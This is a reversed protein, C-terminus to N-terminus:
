DIRRKGTVTEYILSNKYSQLLSIRKEALKIAGDITRLKGRLFDIILVQEEIPPVPMKHRKIVEQSINPQGGGSAEVIFTQKASLFYYFSYEPLCRKSPPLVCCAQNTTTAIDLLGVKGITAGYMAIVVSGKPYTKLKYTKIALESLKKSTDIIIDDPLDGTQLWFHGNDDYYDTVGSPPTMGSGIANYNYVRSVKDIQWHSPVMGLYPVGSDNFQAELNIGKTIANFITSQRLEKLLNIRKQQTAIAKDIKECQADLYDVICKQEEIPPLVVKNNGLDSQTMSPLATATAYYTFPFAIAQYYLYKCINGKLPYAYFMTDVAWFPGDFYLPRDITGKRGLLVVPGDYMYKSAFAFQGGSGIVPFGDEENSIVDKYDAGNNIKACFKFPLVKWHKPVNGLWPIGSSKYNIYKKM